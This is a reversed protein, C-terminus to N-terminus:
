DEKYSKVWSFLLEFNNDWSLVTRPNPSLRRTLLKSLLWKFSIQFPYKKGEIVTSSWIENAVTCM